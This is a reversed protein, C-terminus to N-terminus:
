PNQTYFQKVAAIFGLPQAAYIDHGVGPFVEVKGRGKPMRSVFKDAHSVPNLTDRDGLMFLVPLRITHAKSLCIDGGAAEMACYANVWQYPWLDIDQRPHLNRDRDTIWTPPLKKRQQACMGEVTSGIAGWAIVRRCLDPRNVALLLAVEGGDSFGLIDVQKLGLTDLFEAMRDADRFYFDPPFGRFPPTSQGYGPLDPVIVSFGLAALEQALPMMEEGVMVWGHMLLLPTGDGVTQYFLTQGTLALTPM